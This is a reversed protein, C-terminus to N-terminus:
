RYHAFIYNRIFIRQAGSVKHRCVLTSHCVLQLVSSYIEINTLMIWQWLFTVTCCVQMGKCFPLFNNRIFLHGFCTFNVEKHWLVITTTGREGWEQQCSSVKVKSLYSLRPPATQFWHQVCKNLLLRLVHYKCESLHPTCTCALEFMDSKFCCALILMPAASTVKCYQANDNIGGSWLATGAQYKSCQYSILHHM